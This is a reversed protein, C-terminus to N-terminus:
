ENFTCQHLNLVSFIVWEFNGDLVVYPSLLFLNYEKYEKMTDNLFVFRFRFPFIGCLLKSVLGKDKLEYLFRLDFAFSHSNAARSLFFLANKTSNIKDLPFKKVMDTKEWHTFYLYVKLIHMSKVEYVKQKDKFNHFAKLTDKVYIYKSFLNFEQNM